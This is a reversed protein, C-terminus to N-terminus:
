STWELGKFICDVVTECDAINELVISFTELPYVTEFHFRTDSITLAHIRAQPLLQPSKHARVDVVMVNAVGDGMVEVKECAFCSGTEMKIAVSVSGKPFITVGEITYERYRRMKEVGGQSISMILMFIGPEPCSWSTSAGANLSVAEAQTGRRKGRM